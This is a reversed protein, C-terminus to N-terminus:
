EFGWGPSPTEWFRAWDHGFPADELWALRRVAMALSEAFAIRGWPTEIEGKFSGLHPVGDRWISQM